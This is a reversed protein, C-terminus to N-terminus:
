PIIIDHFSNWSFRIMLLFIICSEPIILRNQPSLTWGDSELGSITYLNVYKGFLFDWEWHFSYHWDWFYRWKKLILRNSPIIRVLRTTQTLAAGSISFGTITLIRSNNFSHSFKFAAKWRHFPLRSVSVTDLVHGNESICVKSLGYSGGRMFFTQNVGIDFHHPGDISLYYPNEFRMKYHIRHVPYMVLDHKM